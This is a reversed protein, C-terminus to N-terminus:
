EGFVIRDFDTIEPLTSTKGCLAELRYSCREVGTRLLKTMTRVDMLDPVNRFVHEGDALRAASFM